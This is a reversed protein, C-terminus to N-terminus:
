GNAMGVIFFVFGILSPFWLISIFVGLWAFYIANVEGFYNRIEWMPQYKFVNSFHAWKDYLIKRHDSNESDSFSMLIKHIIKFPILFVNKQSYHLYKLHMYHSTEDHLIYADTFYNKELM